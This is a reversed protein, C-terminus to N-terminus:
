PVLVPRWGRETMDTMPRNPSPPQARLRLRSQMHARAAIVRARTPIPDHHFCCNVRGDAGCNRQDRARPSLARGSLFESRVVPPFHTYPIMWRSM